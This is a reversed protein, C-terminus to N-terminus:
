FFLSGSNKPEYVTIHISSPDWIIRKIREFFGFPEYKPEQWYARWKGSETFTSIILGMNQISVNM